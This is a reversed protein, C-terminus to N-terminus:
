QMTKDHSPETIEYNKNKLLKELFMSALIVLPLSFILRILTFKLGMFTAEYSTMIVRCLGSCGVYTFIVALRAGKKFLSYVIPFCVYLGGVTTSSLIIAWFYGKLGSEEGLHKEVIERKVWVDFLGLLIFIM